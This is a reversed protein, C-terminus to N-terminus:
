RAELLAIYIHSHTCSLQKGYAVTPTAKLATSSREQVRAPGTQPGCSLQFEGPGSQGCQGDADADARSWKLATRIRFGRSALSDRDGCSGAGACTCTRVSGSRSGGRNQSNRMRTSRPTVPRGQRLLLRLELARSAAWPWCGRAPAREPKAYSGRVCCTCPGGGTAVRAPM